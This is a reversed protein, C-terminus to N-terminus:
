RVNEPPISFFSQALYFPCFSEITAKSVEMVKQFLFSNHLLLLFVEQARINRNFTVGKFSMVISFFVHLSPSIANNSKVGKFKINNKRKLESCWMPSFSNLNGTVLSYNLDKLTRPM